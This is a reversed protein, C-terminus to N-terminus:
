AANKHFLIADKVEKVEIEYLQAIFKIPENALYLNYLAQTTINTNKITPTGFQHHPDVVIAKKKGMPWLRVAINNEFDIKKFFLKIFDLKFQKEIDLSYITKDKEEFYIKKGDTRIGNITESNAFPFITNFKSSLIKHAELIRNSKVGADTLLMFIYLEVLTHFGVACNHNDTWSYSQGLEIGLKGDWFSRVWRRVKQYDLRLIKSIDPLTYIGIGLQSKNEFKKNM